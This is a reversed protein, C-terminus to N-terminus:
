LSPATAAKRLLAKFDRVDLGYADCADAIGHFAVIPCGVCRMNHDFFVNATVPWIRLMEELTM